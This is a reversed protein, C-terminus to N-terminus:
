SEDKTSQHSLSPPSSDQEVSLPGRSQTPGDTSSPLDAPPEEENELFSEPLKVGLLSAVVRLVVRAFTTPGNGKSDGRLMPISGFLFIVLFILIAQASRAVLVQDYLIALALGGLFLDRILRQLSSKM